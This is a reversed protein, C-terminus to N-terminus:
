VHVNAFRYAKNLQVPPPFFYIVTVLDAFETVFM